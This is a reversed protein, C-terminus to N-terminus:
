VRVTGAPVKQTTRTPSPELTGDDAEAFVATPCVFIVRGDHATVVEHGNKPFGCHRCTM